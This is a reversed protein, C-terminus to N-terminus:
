AKDGPLWDGYRVPKSPAWRAYAVGADITEEDVGAGHRQAVEDVTYAGWNSKGMNVRSGAAVIVCNGDGAGIITHSSGVPTHVYDWQKLPREEGEVLLLAEGAVVLFGEQDTEKHYIAMPEGPALVVLNVGLMDYFGEAEEDTWGTFPVSHGRGDREIWRADRANLVWWGDDEPVLGAETEQIRAEPV